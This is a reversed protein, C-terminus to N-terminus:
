FITTYGLTGMTSLRFANSYLAMSGWKWQYFLKLGKAELRMRKGLIQAFSVTKLHDLKTENIDSTFAFDLLSGNQMPDPM